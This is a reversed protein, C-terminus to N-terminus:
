SYGDLFFLRDPVSRVTALSTHPANSMDTDEDADDNFSSLFHLADGSELGGWLQQASQKVKRQLDEDDEYRRDLGSLQPTTGQWTRGPGVATVPVHAHLHRANNSLDYALDTESYPLLLQDEVLVIEEIREGLENESRWVNTFDFRRDQAVNRLSIEMILKRCRLWNALVMWTLLGSCAAHTLVYLEEYVNAPYHIAPAPTLGLALIWANIITHAGCKWGGDQRPVMVSTYLFQHDTPDDDGCDFIADTGDQHGKAINRPSSWGLLRMTDKLKATLFPYADQLRAPSSDYFHVHVERGEESSREVVALLHHGGSGLQTQLGETRRWENVEDLLLDSVTMPLLFCRWPRSVSHPSIELSGALGFQVHDTTTLTFGGTFPRGATAHHHRESQRRDIAEVVAAIAMNVQEFYLENNRLRTHQFEPFVNSRLKMGLIDPGLISRYFNLADSSTPCPRAAHQFTHGAHWNGVYQRAEQLLQTADLKQPNLNRRRLQAWLQQSRYTKLTEFARDLQLGTVDNMNLRQHRALARAKKRNDSSWFDFSFAGPQTHPRGEPLQCRNSAKINKLNLKPEPTDVGLESMVRIEEAYVQGELFNGLYYANDNRIEYAREFRRNIPVEGRRVLNRCRFFAHILAWDTLGMRTLHIMNVLDMFFEDSWDVRVDPNPELGLALIWANLIVYYGCEAEGPQQSVHVYSTFNPLPVEHGGFIFDSTWKSYQVLRQAWEHLFQRREPSLYHNMSNLIAFTPQGENNLQVVLLVYHADYRIPVLWPRGARLIRVAVPFPPEHECLQVYSQQLFAFGGKFDATKHSPRLQHVTIGLTVAGISLSVEDDNLWRDLGRSLGEKQRFDELDQAIKRNTLLANMKQRFETCPDHFAYRQRVQERTLLPTYDSLTPIRTNKDTDDMDWPLEDLHSYGLQTTFHQYLATPGTGYLCPEPRQAMRSRHKLVLSDPITEIFRRDQAPPQDSSVYNRCRLFAWILKWSARGSQVVNMLRRADDLFHADPTFDTLNLPLDLLIAWANLVTIYQSYQVDGRASAFVWRISDPMIAAMRPLAQLRTYVMQRRQAISLWPAPDVAYVVPQDDAENGHQTVVLIFHEDFSVYRFIVRDPPTEANNRASTILRQDHPSYVSFGKTMPRLENISRAVATIGAYTQQEVSIKPWQASEQDYNEAALRSMESRFYECADFDLELESTDLHVNTLSAGPVNNTAGPPLDSSAGGSSSSNPFINSEKAPQPSKPDTGADKRSRKDHDKSRMDLRQKLQPWTDTLNWGGPRRILSKLRTLQEDQLHDSAFVRTHAIGAEVRVDIPMTAFGHEVTDASSQRELLHEFPLKSLDFRRDQSPDVHQHGENSGSSADGGADKSPRVFGTCRLFSVLIKWNLTDQLAMQFVSHARSFFGEGEPRFGPDPSLGLALAWATLIVLTLSEEAEPYQACPTWSLAEPLNNQMEEQSRYVNIWWRNDILVRQIDRFLGGRAQGTTRWTLPDMVHLAIRQNDQIRVILLVFHNQNQGNTMVHLWTRGPRLVRDNHHFSFGAQIPQRANVAALIRPVLAQFRDRQVDLVHRQLYPCPSNEGNTWEDSYVTENESSASHGSNSQGPEDPLAGHPTLKIEINYAPVDGYTSRNQREDESPRSRTETEINKADRFDLDEPARFFFIPQALLEIITFRALPGIIFPAASAEDSNERQQPTENIYTHGNVTVRMDDPLQIFYGYDDAATNLAQDAHPSRRLLLLRASEEEEGGPRVTVQIEFDTTLALIANAKYGTALVANGENEGTFAEELAERTYLDDEQPGFTNAKILNFLDCLAKSLERKGGPVLDKGRAQFVPTRIQPFHFVSEQVDLASWPRGFLSPAYRIVSESTDSTDSGRVTTHLGWHVKVQETVSDPSRPPKSKKPPRASGDTRKRKPPM